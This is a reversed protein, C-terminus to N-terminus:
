LMSTFTVTTGNGIYSDVALKANIATAREYMGRLGFTESNRSQREGVTQDFGAGDDAIRLQVQGDHATLQLQVTTADAHREVNTLAEQAIRYLAQETAAAIRPLQEPLTLVLRLGSREAMGTALLRLAGLLGLDELPSARLAQLARRTETLGQRTTAISKDLTAKAQAEDQDWLLKTGELQLIMGSMHHALTDHLERALRNRERSVALQELTANYQQLRLNAAYLEERQKRQSMIVRTVLYSTVLFIVTRQVTYELRLWADGDGQWISVAMIVLEFVVLMITYRVAPRFGYQWGILVVPIILFYLSGRGKEMLEQVVQVGFDGLMVTSYLLLEGTSAGILALPLYARGLKEVLSPICLYTLTIAQCILFLSVPGPPIPPVFSPEPHFFRVGLNVTVAIVGIVLPIAMLLRFAPLLGPEIRHASNCITPDASLDLSEDLLDQGASILPVPFRIRQAM